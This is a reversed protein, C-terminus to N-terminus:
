RYASPNFSSILSMDITAYVYDGSSQFLAVIPNVGSSYDSQAEAIAVFKRELSELVKPDGVLDAIDMKAKLMEVQRDVDLNASEQPVGLATRIVMSLDEDGLVDYWTKVDGAKQRFALVKGVIPDEESKQDVFTQEVYKEIMQEQWALSKVNVIKTGAETFGMSKHLETFSDNTLRRVLSNKDTIDSELIKAIMAKGFMQNELGHAKMILNYAGYNNVFNKTTTVDEISKRFESIARAHQPAKEISSIQSEKTRDIVKLALSAGLGSISIM